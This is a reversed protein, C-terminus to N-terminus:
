EAQVRPSRVPANKEAVDIRSKGLENVSLVPCQAYAVVFEVLDAGPGGQVGIPRRMSIVILDVAHEKVFRVIQDGSSGDLVFTDVNQAPEDTIGEKRLQRIVRAFSEELETRVADKLQPLTEDSAAPHERRDLVHLLSLRAQYVQAIENAYRIEAAIPKTPDVPALIHAIRVPREVPGDRVTLVPCPTRHIVERTVTSLKVEEESGKGKAGLAVIDVGTQRAYDVIVPGALPGYGGVRRISIEERWPQLMRDMQGAVQAWMEAEAPTRGPADDLDFFTHAGIGPLVHFVQLEANFRLAMGVAYELAGAARPTFDTPHLIKKIILM